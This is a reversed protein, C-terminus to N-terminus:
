GMPRVQSHGPASPGRPYFGQSTYRGATRRDALHPRARSASAVARRVRVLRRVQGSSVIDREGLGGYWECALQVVKLHLFDRTKFLAWGQPSLYAPM